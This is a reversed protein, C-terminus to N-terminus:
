SEPLPEYVTFLEVETLALLRYNKAPDIRIANAPVLEVHDVDDGEHVELVARGGTAMVTMDRRKATSVVVNEGEKVRLVTAVFHEGRAWVFAGGFTKAAFPPGYDSEVGSESSDDDTGLEDDTTQNASEETPM